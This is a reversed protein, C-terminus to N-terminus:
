TPAGPDASNVNNTFSIGHGSSPNQNGVAVPCAHKFTLHALVRQNFQCIEDIGAGMRHAVPLVMGDVAVAAFPVAARAVGTGLKLRLGIKM